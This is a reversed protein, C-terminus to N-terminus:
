VFFTFKKLFYYNSVEVAGCVVNDVKHSYETKSKINFLKM